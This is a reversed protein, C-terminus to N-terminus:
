TANEVKKRRGSRGMLRNMAEEGIRDQFRLLPAAQSRFDAFERKLRRLEEKKASLEKKLGRISKRLGTNARCEDKLRPAIKFEDDVQKKLHVLAAQIRDLGHQIATRRNSRGGRKKAPVM